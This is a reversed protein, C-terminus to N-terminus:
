MLGPPVWVNSFIRLEKARRTLLVREDSTQLLVAVGTDVGRRQVELPIAAMEAASIHKIPCFTPRQCSFYVLLLMVRATQHIFDPSKRVKLPVRSGGDVGGLIFQNKDLSCSVEVQDDSSSFVGTVSQSFVSSSSLPAACCWTIDPVSRSSTLESHSRETRGSM